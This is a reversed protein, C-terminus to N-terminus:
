LDLQMGNSIAFAGVPDFVGWQLMFSVGLTTPPMAIPFFIDGAGDSLFPQIVVYPAAIDIVLLGDNIAVYPATAPSGVALLGASNPITNECSLVCSNNGTIPAGSGIVFSAVPKGLTPQNLQTSGTGLTTVKPEAQLYHFPLTNTTGGGSPTTGITAIAVTGVPNGPPTANPPAFGAMQPVNCLVENPSVLLPTVTVTWVGVFGGVNAFFTVATAAGLGTGTIKVLDGPSAAAPTVRAITSQASLTACLLLLALTIRSM